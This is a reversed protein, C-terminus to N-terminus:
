AVAAWRGINVTRNRGSSPTSGIRARRAASLIRRRRKPKRAMETESSVGLAEGHALEILYGVRDPIKGSKAARIRELEGILNAIRHYSLVPTIGGHRTTTVTFPTIGEGAYVRIDDRPDSLSYPM